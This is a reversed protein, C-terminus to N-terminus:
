PKTHLLSLVSLIRFEGVLDINRVFVGEAPKLVAPSFNVIGHIGGDVLRQAAEAAAIAPVALVALEIRLRKVVKSIEYAPFLPIATRITELKNINSDFGAIINLGSAALREYNLIATGLRGLGVICASRSDRLGMHGSIHAMLKKISYG